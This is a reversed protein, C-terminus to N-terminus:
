LVFSHRGRKRHLFLYFSMLLLVWDRKFATKLGEHYNHESASFCGCDIELNKLIGFWLIFIFMAIMLTIVTLCYPKDMVLGAGAIVELLPLGIAVVPLLMEPVIRYQSIIHGFSKPDILKVTGAWIFVGGIVLRFLLYVLNMSKLGFFKKLRITQM